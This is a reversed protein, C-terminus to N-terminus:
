LKKSGSNIVTILHDGCAANINIACKTLDFPKLKQRSVKIKMEETVETFASTTVEYNANLVWFSMRGKNRQQLGLAM